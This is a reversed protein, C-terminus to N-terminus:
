KEPKTKWKPTSSKSPMESKQKLLQIECFRSYDDKFTVFYRPGTPTCIHIRGCVYWHIIDGVQTGRTRTSMFPNRSMKGMLCGSCHTSLHLKDNFLALGTVSGLSAMRLVTKHNLHGFRQHWLSVPEIQSATMAREVKPQQEEAQINLRYLTKKGARRGEM